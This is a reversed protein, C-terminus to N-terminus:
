EIRIKSGKVKEEQIKELRVELIGNTYRAKAKDPNIRAPLDLRKRYKRINGSEAYIELAYDTANLQIDEKKVGPLEVVVVIENEEEIVDALPERVDPTIREIEDESTPRVINGFKKIIPKGDEGVRVSFGYVFPGKIIPGKKGKKDLNEGKEESLSREIENFINRYFNMFDKSRFQRMMEKMIKNFGQFPDDEDSDFSEFGGFWDNDFEDDDDDFPRFYPFKKKKGM